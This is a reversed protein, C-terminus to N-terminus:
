SNGKEIEDARALITQAKIRLDTVISLKGLKCEINPINSNNIRDEFEDACDRMTQAQLQRDRKEMENAILFCLDTAVKSCRDADFVETSPRPKWCMSAAGVAEFIGHYTESSIRFCIPRDKLPLAMAEERSMIIATKNMAGGPKPNTMPDNTTKCM